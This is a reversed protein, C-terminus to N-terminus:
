SKKKGIKFSQRFRKRKKSDRLNISTKFSQEKKLTEILKSKVLRELVVYRKLYSYICGVLLVLSGAIAVSGNSILPFKTYLNVTVQPEQYIFQYLGLALCIFSLFCLIFINQYIGKLTNREIKLINDASLIPNNLKKEESIFNLFEKSVSVFHSGHSRKKLDELTIEYKM